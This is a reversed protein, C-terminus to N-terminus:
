AVAFPQELHAHRRRVGRRGRVAGAGVVVAAEEEVRPEGLVGEDGAEVHPGAGRVRHVVHDQEPDGGTRAECASAAVPTGPSPQVHKPPAPMGPM